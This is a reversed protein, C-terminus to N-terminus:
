RCGTEAWRGYPVNRVSVFRSWKVIVIGYFFIEM